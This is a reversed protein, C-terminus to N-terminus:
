EEPRPVYLGKFYLKNNKWCYNTARKRARKGVHLDTTEPVDGGRLIEMCVEDEWIDTGEAEAGCVERGSFDVDGADCGGCRSFEQAVLALELQQRRSYYASSGAVMRRGKPSESGPNEGPDAAEVDEETPDDKEEPSSEGLADLM